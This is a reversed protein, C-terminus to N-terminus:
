FGASVVWRGVLTVDFYLFADDTVFVKRGIVLFLENFEITVVFMDKMQFTDLFPNRIRLIFRTWKTSFINLNTSYIFFLIKFYIIIFLFM